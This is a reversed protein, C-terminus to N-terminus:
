PRGKSRRGRGHGLFVLKNKAIAQSGQGVDFSANVTSKDREPEKSKKELNTGEGQKEKEPIQVKGSRGRRSQFQYINKSTKEVERVMQKEMESQGQDTDWRFGQMCKDQSARSGVKSSEVRAKRMRVGETEQSITVLFSEM